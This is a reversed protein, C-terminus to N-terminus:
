SILLSQDKKKKKTSHFVYNQLVMEIETHNQRRHVFRLGHLFPKSFRTHVFGVLCRQSSTSCHSHTMTGLHSYIEAVAQVVNWCWTSFRGLLVSVTIASYCSWSEILAWPKSIIITWFACVHTTNLRGCAKWWITWAKSVQSNDEICIARLM